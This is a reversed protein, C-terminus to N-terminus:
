MCNLGRMGGVVSSVTMQQIVVDGHEKVISKLAEQKKPVIDKLVTKISPASAFQRLTLKLMEGM